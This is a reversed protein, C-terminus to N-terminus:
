TGAGDDTRSGRRMAREEDATFENLSPTPPQPERVPRPEPPRRFHPKVEIRRQGTDDEARDRPTKEYAALTMGAAKTGRKDEALDEPSGEYKRAM